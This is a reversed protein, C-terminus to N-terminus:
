LDAPIVYMAMTNSLTVNRDETFMEHGHEVFDLMDLAQSLAFDNMSDNPGVHVHVHVGSCRNLDLNKGQEIYDLVQSLVRDDASDDMKLKGVDSAPWAYFGNDNM